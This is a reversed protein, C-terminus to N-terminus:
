EVGGKQRHGAALQASLPVLVVFCSGGGPRPVYFLDGKFDRVLRRAISLGLGSGLQRATVTDDVRYFKSFIRSRHAKPVGPGQDLFALRCTGAEVTLTIALEKGAAAYKIGNDLLNILVQELADRDIDVYVPAPPLKSELKMGAARVRPMSAAIFRNLYAHMDVSEIRYKKRGQELRSFDLVNNVLRTLRLSEKAIVSLYQRRKKPDKIRDQHLLEAYMRISTLPTKLEHSVNSVFATKQEADKFSRRAQRTLMLGGTFIAFVFIALVIGALIIFGRGGLRKSAGAVEHATVQWHPLYPALSVTVAPSSDPELISEGTHYLLRGGDDILAFAVGEVDHTPFGTVMRSLLTILELEIGYVPAGKEPQVWGIIYLKNESFWPAWGSRQGSAVASVGARAGHDKDPAHALYVMKQSGVRLRKMEQLFGSGIGRVNIHDGSGETLSPSSPTSATESNGTDGGPWPIRGSFLLDYRQIFRQEEWSDNPHTRPHLLGKRPHWIFVNRVLPNDTEWHILTDLLESPPIQLLTHTLENEIAAVTFQLTEAIARARDLAASRAMQEIREQEHRLLQFAALAILLTPVLFLMWYLLIFRRQMTNESNIRTNFRRLTNGTM